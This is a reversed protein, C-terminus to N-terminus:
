DTPLKKDWFAQLRKTASAYADRVRGLDEATIEGRARKLQALEYQVQKLQYDQKLLTGEVVLPINHFGITQMGADTNGIARLEAPAVTARVRETLSRFSTLFSEMQTLRQLGLDASYATAFEEAGEAADPHRKHLNLYGIASPDQPVGTRASATASQPDRAGTMSEPSAILAVLGAALIVRNIM